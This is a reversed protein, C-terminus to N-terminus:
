HTQDPIAAPDEPAPDPEADRAPWRQWNAAYYLVPIVV